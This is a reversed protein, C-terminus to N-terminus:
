SSSPLVRAAHAYLTCHTERLFGALTVGLRDALTVALATPASVAALVSIGAAAAKQVMEFSARSSVVAMGETPDIDARALAGILKDLANHRGVDERVLHLTGDLGAWGAGHTAGTLLHLPQRSRMALQADFLAQVTLVAGPTVPDIPRVVEGLTEVGCLGCGTRGALARRREKLRVMRATAIEMRVVYGDCSSEVEIDRVDHRSGIIGETLSFGLAFDDLEAPTLLMTAYSIGNYEIAVAAEVALHDLTPAPAIRGGAVRLVPLDLHTDPDAAATATNGTNM